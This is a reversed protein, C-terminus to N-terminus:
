PPSSMEVLDNLSLPEASVYPSAAAVAARRVGLAPDSSLKRLLRAAQEPAHRSSLQAYRVADIRVGGRPHEALQETLRFFAYPVLEAITDADSRLRALAADTLWRIAGPDGSEAAVLAEAVRHASDEPAVEFLV